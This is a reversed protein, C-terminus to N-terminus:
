KSFNKLKKKQNEINEPNKFYIELDIMKNKDFFEELTKLNIFAINEDFESLGSEFISTILFLKKNQYLGLLQKFVLLHLLQFRTEM